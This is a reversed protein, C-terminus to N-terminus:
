PCPGWANIVAFLDDINVFGNGGQPAIDARCSAPPAPCQGWANIVAFLDDINVYGNGNPAPDIDAPCAPPPQVCTISITGTGTAGNVGGVRIRYLNGYTVPFSIQPSTGCFDDNCALTQGPGSPCNNGYAAVKANFSAGCLSVTATGTCQAGYWFWIDNDIQTYGNFNCGSTENPGDTSAGVTSFPTSGGFTVTANSCFDNAPPPPGQSVAGSVVLAYGQPGQNVGTGKVRVTWSGVTPSNIHVQEVNNVTDASGGTVSVGGSFVNGLYTGSPGIVQLDLNNIFAPNAGASAPPETWVLTIKLKQTNNNVNITRDTQQGTTLGQNNRVDFVAMTRGGSEGAFYLAEDALIRGWGEQNSPYGSVGTMDVASNILTAKILAGSPTFANASVAAGTPYYGATYYQRVLAAVGTIAPAAMSTGSLAATGCATTGSGSSSTTNCGPAYVEPKRRGDNTPGSGGTCWSAQNPTDNTAGVALLNKANEPNKLTSTNTVALVVLSDENQYSFNDIGRCLGDYATTSDNGWSNTHVRATQNHHNQLSSFVSSESFSPIGSHVLKALYAVGRTNGADSFNDGVATGATHTGHQDYGSTGNLSLIKRHSPGVPNVTDRFSCHNINISGDMHGVVQNEGRLGATYLPTVNTSNSQVIWRVTDNRYTIEGVEEVYQVSALQALQGALALPMTLTITPNGALNEIRHIQVPGIAQISAIVPEAPENEFLTLELVVDGRAAIEQRQSTVFTHHGIDPDIKWSNQYEGVWLGGWQARSEALQAPNVDRLDAILAYAPLYDSLRAGLQEIASSRQSTIPGDFQVVYRKAADFQGPLEAVNLLNPLETTKVDGTRLNLTGVAFAFPQAPPVQVQINQQAAGAAQAEAAAGVAGGFAGGPAPQDTLRSQGYTENVLGFDLVTGAVLALCFGILRM